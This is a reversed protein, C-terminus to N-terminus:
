ENIIGLLLAMRKQFDPHGYLYSGAVLLDAGAKVCLPGTVDNLGGDVEILPRHGEPLQSIARKLRRIKPLAGPMFSQGGKGPEVSMVLVLDVKGLFPLIKEVPTLPKISIGALAGGRHIEQITVERSEDDPCAEYHFTLIDAGKAVFDSAFLWPKEIMIHVDNVMSHLAHIEEVFASSFSVNEVFRGDMVDIHVFHAGAKETMEIEERLHAHDAALLSPSAAPYAFVQLDKM